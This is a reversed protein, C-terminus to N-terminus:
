KKRFMLDILM